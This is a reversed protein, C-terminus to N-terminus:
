IQGLNPWVAIGAGYIKFLDLRGGLAAGAIGRARLVGRKQTHLLLLLLLLLLLCHLNTSDPVDSTSAVVCM